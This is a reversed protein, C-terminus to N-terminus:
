DGTYAALPLNTKCVQVIKTDRGLIRESKEKGWNTRMHHM